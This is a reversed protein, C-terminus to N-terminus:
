GHLLHNKLSTVRRTQTTGALRDMWASKTKTPKRTSTRFNKARSITWINSVPSPPRSRGFLRPSTWRRWNRAVKPPEADDNKKQPDSAFSPRSLALLLTLALWAKERRVSNNLREIM